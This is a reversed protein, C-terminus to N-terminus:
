VALTHRVPPRKRKSLKLSIPGGPIPRPFKGSVGRGKLQAMLDKWKTPRLKQLLALALITKQLRNLPPKIGTLVHKAFTATCVDALSQPTTRAKKEVAPLSGVFLTVTAILKSKGHRVDSSANTKQNTTNNTKQNTTNNTKNNLKNKLKNKLMNPENSTASSTRVNSSANTNLTSNSNNTSNAANNKTKNRMANNNNRQQTGNPQMTSMLQNFRRTQLNISPRNTLARNSAEQNNTSALNPLRRKVANRNDTSFITTTDRTAPTSDPPMYQKLNLIRPAANLLKNTNNIRPTITNANANTPTTPTTPITFNTTNANSNTQNTTQNRNTRNTTDTQVTTQNPDKPKNGAAQDKKNSGFLGFM